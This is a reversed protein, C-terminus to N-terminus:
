SRVSTGNSRYLVPFAAPDTYDPNGTADKRCLDDNTIHWPEGAENRFVQYRNKGDQMHLALSTRPFTGHNVDSGHIMRSHHFSMQGKELAIVRKRSESGDGILRAELAALDPSNFHRMSETDPWRHSGDIYIVPGMEVPCDHLPIWATLMDESTCTMWYARDTHWGVVPGSPGTSAPKSVLQDDWLRVENSRTLRAAIAGIIPYEALARLERNQLSVYESNRITNGDAPKWDGFGSSIPLRWDREGSWHREAGAVAADIVEDPIVKKSVYYGHEEYFDVDADTPLVAEQEATLGM